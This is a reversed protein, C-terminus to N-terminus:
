IKDVLSVGKIKSLINPFFGKFSFNTKREIMADVIKQTMNSM